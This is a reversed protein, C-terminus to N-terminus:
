ERKLDIIESSVWYIDQESGETRDFLIFKNDPTVQPSLDDLQSNIRAGLNVPQTWRDNSAFSIYIDHGGIGGPRNSAFLLYSEDSAIFPRSEDYESNIVEGLNEITVLPEQISCHFIDSNGFNGFKTTFSGFYLDHKLSVTPNGVGGETSEIGLDILEPDQWQGDNGKYSIWPMASWKTTSPPRNSVFVLYEGSPAPYAQWNDGVNSFSSKQPSSWVSGTLNMQMVSANNFYDIRTFYFQGGDSSFVGNAERSGKKSIYEPSFITAVSTPPTEIWYVIELGKQHCSSIIVLCFLTTTIL